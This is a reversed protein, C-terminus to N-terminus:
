ILETDLIKEVNEYIEATYPIEILKVNISKAYERKIEDHIQQKALQEEGGFFEVSTYHQKGQCEILCKLKGNQYFAFDYSLMGDGYGRLDDFRVQSNYDISAEYNHEDFYQVVYLELKSQKLCGCSTIMGKKLYYGQVLKENGCDCSCRWYGLSKGDETKSEERGLVTLIGFKKGVLNIIRSKARNASAEAQMCGCSVITGSRLATGKVIKTNGCDCQCLWFYTSNGQNDMDRHDVSLVLLRGFKQGTIDLFTRKSTRKRSKCGCSIVRKSLLANSQYFRLNGCSCRCEWIIRNEKQSKEESYRVVYLEGFTRGTLDNKPIGRKCGCSTTIGSKLSHDQIFRETGCDCKCLWYTGKGKHENSKSLVTLMGFKDGVHVEPYPTKNEKTAKKLCGCSKTQGSSLRGSYVSIENGCDCKCIWKYGHIKDYDSTDLCLVKLKYFKQGTLDNIKNSTVCGCNTSRGLKLSYGLVSRETGCECRCIWRAGRKSIREESDDLRLVTWKGFTQGALDEVQNKVRISTKEDKECGCSASIGSRLSTGAVSRLTGCECKCKWYINKKKIDYDRELVTWRGFQQGTLDNLKGM